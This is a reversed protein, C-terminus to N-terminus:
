QRQQEIELRPKSPLMISKIVVSDVSFLSRCYSCMTARYNKEKLFSLNPLFVAQNYKKDQLYM